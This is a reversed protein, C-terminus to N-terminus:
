LHKWTRGKRVLSVTLPTVGYEAALDCVRESTRTRIELAKAPTLTRGARLRVEKDLMNQTQTGLLLHLPNCCPPNDCSHRVQLAGPDIQYYICYALRHARLNRGGGLGFIGYGDRDRRATWEWCGGSTIVVKAWFRQVLTLTLISLIM